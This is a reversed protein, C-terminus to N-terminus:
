VRQGYIHCIEKDSVLSAGEKFKRQHQHQIRVILDIAKDQDSKGRERSVVMFGRRSGLAMKLCSFFIRDNVDDSFFPYGIGSGQM